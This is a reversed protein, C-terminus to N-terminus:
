VNGKFFECAEAALVLHALQCEKPGHKALVMAGITIYIQQDAELWCCSYGKQGKGSHLALKFSKQSARDIQHRLVSQLGDNTIM